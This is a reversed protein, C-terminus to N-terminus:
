RSRKLRSKSRWRSLVKGRRIACRGVVLTGSTPKSILPLGYGVVSKAFNKFKEEGGYVWFLIEDTGANACALDYQPFLWEELDYGTTYTYTAYAKWGKPVGLLAIDHHIAEMGLDVWIEIGHTQAYRALWRKQYVYALAVAKPM